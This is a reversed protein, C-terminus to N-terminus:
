NSKIAIYRLHVLNSGALQQTCFLVQARRVVEVRIAKISKKFIQFSRLLEDRQAQEHDNRETGSTALFQRLTVFDTDKHEQYVAIPPEELDNAHKEVPPQYSFM